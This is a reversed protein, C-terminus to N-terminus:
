LSIRLNSLFLVFISIPMKESIAAKKKPLKHYSQHCNHHKRLEKICCSPVAYASFNQESYM